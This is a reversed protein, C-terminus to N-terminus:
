TIGTVASISAKAIDASTTATNDALTYNGADAGGLVIESIGVSKGNGANKDTFAGSASTVSLEDDGFRGTFGSGDYNLSVDTTGDYTRNQATIGTVASISAKAIDASTTASNDALTYNGADAGGLVIESIGVSKGNGANKNTFAGTASAVSLEDDGFRGTFGSGDYNLSADTTGDYTRNQATIGTVASISAKAIDASTTANNDALTYNGADAGGLVINSIGVSKGNGANKDTFAGNASAVSLEDDGFRGTFGSGDYNLSVDTTGDYTRNQATIGTVASISAKAIDASTTATNDALTYNGADAGGLVINSIGVTKGGGANKDIFAGSASAVSLEDSGFRGTFAANGTNLSADATGDYTRDQATIGTVASISAKAIDATATATTSDLTYNNAHGGGLVINSISVTKGDGADKTDFAGSASTVTLIDNGIRGTFTASGTDLGANTTGDYTRDQATIGTVASIIAKNITGTFIATSSVDYNGVDAGSVTIGTVIVTKNTGANSNTFATNASSISLSDGAVMGDFAANSTDLTATTTGDYTKDAVSLGTISSITAKTINANTTANTSVLSYNGADAGGLVINSIDVTKGNGVNKDVFAGSASAVSLEDTGIRGTFGASGTNLTADTTGDYTRNEATIGTVASLSAKAIVYSGEVVKIDYGQQDSYLGTLGLGYTGANRTSVSTYSASGQLSAGSDSLSHSVGAVTGSTGDYTKGAVDGVTVTLSKLLGRLLPGSHGDYLRWAANTGGTSALSWGAFTSAQTLESWTKGTGLYNGSFAHGENIAEGNADTTAYFSRAISGGGPQIGVLGGREGPGNMNVGGTAYSDDIRAGNYGVLGGVFFDGTASGSAYTNSVNQESRGVLGGVETRGTVDGTAYASDIRGTNNGVLGGVRDNGTVSVTAYVNSLSSSNSGVLAGVNNDSSVVRGGLLGLNRITSGEATTGFLGVNDSYRAITLGSITHGQGDLSGRFANGSDGIPSFGATSWMGSANSGATASADINRVLTYSTGLNYAMLQLQHANGINTSYESALFPRTQGEIMIWQVVGSADRAVAVNSTGSVRAWSGFSTYSTANYRNNADIAAAGLSTGYNTASGKGTSSSDWYTNSLTGSNIAILGGGSAGNVVGTAYANSIIGGVENSGVLGGALFQSGVTGTAYANSISGTNMGVLGGSAGDVAVSSVQGTAYANSISGDNKGVLGGSSNYVNSSINVTAYVNSISGANAGVLGGVDMFDADIVEVSGGVLGTDRIESSATTSGFLGVGAYGLSTHALITLNSLTHGLGSLRGSFGSGSNGVPVWNAISSLDIDSGVAYNGDLRGGMNQLDTATNVVTYTTKAGTTGKQTSFNNGSQLNIPAKIVYDATGGDASGQGYLLAVKGSAHEATIVANVNINREANLTLTNGTNWTIADNVHIDGNRGATGMTATQIEFNNSQVAASVSAGTMNGGSAAITFDNPDILWTGTKGSAAQTTVKASDSVNVHAGSTEIFGGKG